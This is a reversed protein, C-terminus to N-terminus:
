GRTQDEEAYRIRAPNPAEPRLHARARCLLFATGKPIPQGPEWPQERAGERSKEPIPGPIMARWTMGMLVQRWLVDSSAHGLERAMGARVGAEVHAVLGPYSHQLAEVALVSQFMLTRSGDDEDETRTMDMADATLPNPTTSM